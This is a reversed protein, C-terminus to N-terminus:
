DDGRKVATIKFEYDFYNIREGVVPYPMVEKLEFKIGDIIQNGQYDPHTNLTFLYQDNGGVILKFRVAANGAWVCEAGSPCRSDNLLSDPELRFDHQFDYYIDNMGILIADNERETIINRRRYTIDPNEPIVTLGSMRLSDKGMFTIGHLFEGPIDDEVFDIAIQDGILQYNFVDYSKLNKSFLGFRGQSESYFDVFQLALSQDNVWIGKLKEFDPNPERDSSKECGTFLSGALLLMMTIMKSFYTKM